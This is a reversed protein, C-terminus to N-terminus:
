LSTLILPCLFTPMLDDSDILLSSKGQICFPSVSTPSPHFSINKYNWHPSSSHKLCIKQGRGGGATPGAMKKSCQNNKTFPRAVWDKPKTKQTFQYKILTEWVQVYEWSLYHFSFFLAFYCWSIEKTSTFNMYCLIITLWKFNATWRHKTCEWHQVVMAEIWIWPMKM